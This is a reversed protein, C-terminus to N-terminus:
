LFLKNKRRRKKKRKRGQETQSSGRSSSMKLDLFYQSSSWEIDLNDGVNIMHLMLMSKRKARHADFCAQSCYQLPRAFRCRHTATKETCSSCGGIAINLKSADNDESYHQKRIWVTVYAADTGWISLPIYKQCTFSQLLMSEFAADGTLGIWEGAHVVMDGRFSQLASFAMDTGPPPYCLFLASDKGITTTASSRSADLQTVNTFAPVESHYENNSYDGPPSIDYATINIGYKQLLAAWYGTGAGVEIVRKGHLILTLQQLAYPSPTAYAYLSAPFDRAVDRWDALCPDPSFTEHHAFQENMNGTRITAHKMAQLLLKSSSPNKKLRSTASWFHTAMEYFRHQWLTHLPNCFTSLDQSSINSRSDDDSQDSGDSQNSSGNNSNSPYTFLGMNEVLLAKTSPDLQEVFDKAAQQSVKWAMGPFSFYVPPDPVKTSAETAADTLSAYYARYYLSDAKMVIQLRWPLGNDNNNSNRMRIVARLDTAKEQIYILDAPSLSKKAMAEQMLEFIKTISSEMMEGPKVIDESALCRINRAHCFVLMPSCINRQRKIKKSLTLRHLARSSGCVQCSDAATDASSDNDAAKWGACKGQELSEKLRLCEPWEVMFPHLLRSDDNSSTTTAPGKKSEKKQKSRSPSDATNSSTNNNYTPSTGEGMEALLANIEDDGSLM